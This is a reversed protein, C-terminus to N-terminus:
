GVGVGLVGTATGAVYLHRLLEVGTGGRQQVLRLGPLQESYQAAAQRDPHFIPARPGVRLIMGVLVSHYVLM